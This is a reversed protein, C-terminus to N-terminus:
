ELDSNVSPHISENIHLLAQPITIGLRGRVQDLKALSVRRYILTSCDPCIGILNGHTGTLNEYDAMDGAPSKPTRCRVCYIEGPKCTCRNKVRRAQLFEFLDRGLILMPRKDDTTPLGQKVWQRVTNKHICYMTAVEEVTYNRHIKALRPNPRRKKVM